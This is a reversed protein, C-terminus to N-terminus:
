EFVIQILAYLKLEFIKESRRDGTGHLILGAKAIRPNYRQNHHIQNSSVPQALHQAPYNRYAGGCAVGELNEAELRELSM